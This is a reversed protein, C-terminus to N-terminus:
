QGTAAGNRALYRKWPTWYYQRWGKTVGLYDEPPVDLHVLDIRGGKADDSFSLILTSDPSKKKFESSRWTQVILRKRTVAVIAGWIAGEFAEFAAGAAKSIKVPSGTIAGHRKPDLYSDFLEEGSAPLVVSQKIVSRM